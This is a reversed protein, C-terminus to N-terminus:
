NGCKYLSVDQLNGPGQSFGINQENTSSNADATTGDPAGTNRTATDFGQVATCTSAVWSSINSQNGSGQGSSNWYIYRLKGQQIMQALEDTTLVQDQGMFGGLYLVPRGTALVYDAGQMSSPVAMLYYIDQTRPELYDLLAQNVQLGGRNAPGSSQGSYASPLSQNASTNLNTLASWIGPTVLIAAVICIFSALALRGLKRRITAAILLLAGIAFIALTLPLWWINRVFSQATMLQFALTGGAAALLLTVAPWPHQKRLRWLQVVGVAVLAALPAALMSLYYEHFFGAVSFFVVCTLLWGGWLVLGQHNPTVPWHWRTGFLLLLTSVLGFPLLWSVEKSLPPIFFRLAGAQGIGGLGGSGISQSGANNRPGGQQPFGGGSGNPVGQPFSRNNGDPQFYRFGDNNGDQGTSSFGGQPFYGNSLGPRGQPSVGNQTPGQSGGAPLGGSPGGGPADGRRGFMGLLRDIGNYVLILSTESNDGSSGVYPRQDAPTLDVAIAWSLSIALLLVSALALKGVKRWLREPSGLFYLAFFAPLPLYAQLMKINFGIGVLAAGLLLYRLRGTDTAKIFAWAALLLTLILTSDITNNRDTAIVIPTIGLALAALLGAVTGFSRRVLHYVVIVSLIGALIQPLVVSFGNVGLFYASITQIWLGVPPKDVSVSGGPEAAVFFFNHWSKLMSAVAATYYHNAYGLASLNAFRLTASLIVIAVVFLLAPTVRRWLPRELWSHQASVQTPLTATTM